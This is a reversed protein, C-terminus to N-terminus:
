AIDYTLCPSFPRTNVTCKFSQISYFRFYFLYGSLLLRLRWGLGPIRSADFGAEETGISCQAMEVM